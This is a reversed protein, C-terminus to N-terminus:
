PTLLVLARVKDAAVVSQLRDNTDWVLAFPLEDATQYTWRPLDLSGTLDSRPPGLAVTAQEKTMGVVVKGARIASLVEPPYAAIRPTPDGKLALRAVFQQTTQQKRGYDLGIWMPRGNVLVKARQSGYDYVRMPTGAPIFPQGIWNADSIWGDADHHLNCCSFALEAAAAKVAEATPAAAIKPGVVRNSGIEELWVESRLEDITGTVRYRTDAKLEVDVTGEVLRPGGSFVTSFISQIPAAHDIMGKLKLRVPGAPVPREIDVLRMNAGQGRSARQSETQSNRDVTKGNVEALVFFQGGSFGGGNATDAISAQTAPDFPVRPPPASACAQLLLVLLLMSLRHLM